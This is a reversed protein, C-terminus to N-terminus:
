PKLQHSRAMITEAVIKLEDGTKPPRKTIEGIKFPQGFTVKLRYRGSFFKAVALRGFDLRVPIINANPVQSALYAVGRRAGRPRGLGRVKGEPYIYILGKAKLIAVARALSNELGIGRRVGYGGLIWIGFGVLPIRMLHEYATFSLPFWKLSFPLAAGIIFHDLRSQHNSVIIFPPEILELLQQGKVTFHGFTYLFLNFIPWLVIHIFATIPRILQWM